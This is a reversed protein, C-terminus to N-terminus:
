GTLLTRANGELEFLTSNAAVAEGANVFWTIRTPLSNTAQEATSNLSADLQKFVENVWAVGCVICDERTIVTAVAQENEPILMATIDHSAQPMADGVAGLDESLAWFITKSIDQQLKELQANLM